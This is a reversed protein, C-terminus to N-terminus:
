NSLLGKELVVTDDSDSINDIEINELLYKLILLRNSESKSGSINFSKKIENNPHSILFRM